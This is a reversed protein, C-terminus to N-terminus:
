SNENTKLFRSKPFNNNIKAKNIADIKNKTNLSNSNIAGKVYKAKYNYNLYFIKIIEFEDIDFNQQKM